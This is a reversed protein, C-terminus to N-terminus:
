RQGSKGKKGKGRTSKPNSKTISLQGSGSGVESGEDRVRSPQGSGSGVESTSGSESRVRKFNWSEPEEEEQDTDRRTSHKNEIVQHLRKYWIHQLARACHVGDILIDKRLKTIKAQTRDTQSTKKRKLSRSYTKEAWNITETGFKINLEIIKQNIERIDQELQDQQEELNISTELTNLEEETTDKNHHHIYNTLLAPPITAINITSGYKHKVQHIFDCIEQINERKSQYQLVHKHSITTKSTLNCIGGCVFATDWNRTKINPNRRNTLKSALEQLTAGKLVIIRSDYKTYFDTTRLYEGLGSGRSDTIILISPKSM